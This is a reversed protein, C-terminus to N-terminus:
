TRLFDTIDLHYKFSDVDHVGILYLVFSSVSSGRGVGWVQNKESLTNIVFIIVRLIPIMDLKTYIDLEKLVRKSCQLGETTLKNGSLHNNIVLYEELKDMVYQQPDLDQYQPPLIWDLTLPRITDKVLIQDSEAVLQNYKLIDKTIERVFLGRISSGNAVAGIIQDVNEM